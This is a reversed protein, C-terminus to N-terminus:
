LFIREECGNYNFQYSDSVLRSVNGSAQPGTSNNQSDDKGCAVFTMTILAAISIWGKVQRRDLVRVKFAGMSQEKMM